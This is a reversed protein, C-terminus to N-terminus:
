YNIPKKARQWQIMGGELSYVDTFGNSILIEATKMSRNGNSCYIYIPRHKDFNEFQRQFDKGQIDINVAGPIYGQKFELDTRVDIILLGGDLIAALENAHIIKIPSQSFGSAFTLTAILLSLFIKM